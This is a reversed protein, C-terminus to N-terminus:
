RHWSTQKLKKANSLFLTGTTARVTKLCFFQSYFNEGSIKKSSGTFSHCKFDSRPSSIGIFDQLGLVHEQIIKTSSSQSICEFFQTPNLGLRSLYDVLLNDVLEKYQKSLSFFFLFQSIHRKKESDNSLYLFHEM